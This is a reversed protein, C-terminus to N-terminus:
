VIVIVLPQSPGSSINQSTNRVLKYSIFICPVMVLLSVTNIVTNNRGELVQHDLLSWKYATLNALEQEEDTPRLLLIALKPIQM